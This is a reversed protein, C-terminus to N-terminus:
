QSTIKSAAGLLEFLYSDEVKSKRRREKYDERQTVPKRVPKQGLSTEDEGKRGELDVMQRNSFISNGVREEQQGTADLKHEELPNWIVMANYEAEETDKLKRSMIKVGTASGLSSTGSIEQKEKNATTTHQDNNEKDTKEVDQVEKEPKHENTHEEDQDQLVEFQNKQTLDKPGQKKSWKQEKRG